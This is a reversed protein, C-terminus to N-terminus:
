KKYKQQIAEFPDIETASSGASPTDGSAKIRENVTAEVSMDFVSKLAAINSKTTEADDSMVMDVFDVSLGAEDLQKTAELKYERQNLAKERDNIEQERKDREAQAREDASLKALKEAETKAEEIEKNKAEEWKAKESALQSQVATALQERTFTKEASESAGNEVNDTSTNPEESNM